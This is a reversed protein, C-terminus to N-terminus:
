GRNCPDSSILEDGEQEGMERTHFHLATPRPQRELRAGTRRREERRRKTGLDFLIIVLHLSGSIKQSWPARWMQAAASSM